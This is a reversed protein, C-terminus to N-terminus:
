DVKRVRIFRPFRPLGKKTFGSYAYTIVSGILPPNKRLKDTLGSGVKFQIGQSTEVILSGVLGQYKGKGPSYGIVVAEADFYPKVKLLSDHRGVQYPQKINRLMLGEGGRKLVRSLEAM